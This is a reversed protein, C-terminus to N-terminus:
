EDEAYIEGLVIVKGEAVMHRHRDLSFKSQLCLFYITGGINLSLAEMDFYLPRLDRFFGDMMKKDFLKSLIKMNANFREAMEDVEKKKVYDRCGIGFPFVSGRHVLGLEADFIHDKALVVLYEVGFVSFSINETDFDVNKILSSKIIGKWDAKNNFRYFKHVFDKAVHTVIRKIGEAATEETKARKDRHESM